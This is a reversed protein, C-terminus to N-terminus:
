LQVFSHLINIWIPKTKPGNFTCHYRAQLDTFCRYSVKVTSTNGMTRYSCGESYLTCITCMLCTKRSYYKSMPLFRLIYKGACMQFCTCMYEHATFYLLVDYFNPRASFPNFCFILVYGYKLKLPCYAFLTLLPKVRIFYIPRVKMRVWAGCTTGLDSYIYYTIFHSSPANSGLALPGCLVTPAKLDIFVRLM